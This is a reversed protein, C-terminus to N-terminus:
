CFFWFAVYAMYECTTAWEPSYIHFLEMYEFCELAGLHKAPM